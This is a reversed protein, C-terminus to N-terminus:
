LTPSGQVWFIPRVAWDYHTPSPKPPPQIPRHGRVGQQAQPLPSAAGRFRRVRAILTRRSECLDMVLRECQGPTLAALWHRGYFLLHVVGFDSWRQLTIQLVSREQADRECIISRACLGGNYLMLTLQGPSVHAQSLPSAAGRFRCPDM